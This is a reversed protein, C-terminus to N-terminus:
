RGILDCCSGRSLDGAFLTRSEITVISLGTDRDREKYRVRFVLLGMTKVNVNQESM